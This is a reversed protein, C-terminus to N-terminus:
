RILARERASRRSCRAEVAEVEAYRRGESFQRRAERLVRDAAEDETTNTSGSRLTEAKDDHRQVLPGGDEDDIGAVKPPNFRTISPARQAPEVLPRHFARTLTRQHRCRVAHGRGFQLGQARAATSPRPRRSRARSVTSSSGTQINGLEAEVDQHDSRRSRAGRTEYLRPSRHRARDERRSRACCTAPRSRRDGFRDELIERRRARAPGRLGWFSLIVEKIFGRYDRM